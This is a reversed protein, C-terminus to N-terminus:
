FGGRWKIYEEEAEMAAIIGATLPTEWKKFEEMIAKGLNERKTNDAKNLILYKESSPSTNKFLGQSDIILKVITKIDIRDGIAKGTLESFLKERHVWDNNIPKNLADLGIIGITKATNSPIVPEHDAPAKIPKRKSGDAEVLIYDFEKEEYLMTVDEPQLGLLKNEQTIERGLIYINADKTKKLVKLPHENNTLSFYDYIGKHPCFIATTTTVLVKKGAERLEEALKFMTTTKGGGGVFSIVERKNLDINIAQFAKM